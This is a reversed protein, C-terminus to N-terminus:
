QSAGGFPGYRRKSFALMSRHQGLLKCLFVYQLLRQDDITTIHRLLSIVPILIAITWVWAYIGILLTMWIAIFSAPGLVLVLPVLPVGLVLAPRTCGRFIADM